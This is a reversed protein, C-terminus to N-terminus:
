AVVVARDAKLRLMLGHKFISKIAGPRHKSRREHWLQNEYHIHRKRSLCRDDVVRWVDSRTIAQFDFQKPGM